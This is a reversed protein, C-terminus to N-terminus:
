ISVIKLRNLGEFDPKENGFIQLVEERAKTQWDQHMSLLVMTWTLLVSTANEGALYFAKCEDILEALTMGAEKGNEKIQKSNLEMYFGLLDNNFTEGREMAKERKDIIAKFSAIMEKETENTRRNAKTPLYRSGPILLSKLAQLGLDVQEKQLLFIKRGEEHYSGFAARALMKCSLDHFCAWTDVELSEEASAMAEWEKFMEECSAEFAPLMLKLKDIRYAPNLLSRHKAWKDGEHKVLGSLLTRPVSTLRPKQFENFRNLVEKIMEPDMLILAPWPGKWMFSNKGYKTIVDLEFPIVRSVIDHSLSDMPKSQAKTNMMNNERIDGILLKYPTGNLGQQRLCEELKKPKLWVWNIVKWIMWIWAVTGAIWGMRWVEIEIEIM